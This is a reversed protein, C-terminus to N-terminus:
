PIQNTLVVVHPFLLACAKNDPCQYSMSQGSVWHVGLWLRLEVLIMVGRVPFYGSALRGVDTHRHALTDVKRM